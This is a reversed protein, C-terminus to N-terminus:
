NMYNTGETVQLPDTFGELNVLGHTPLAVATVTATQGNKYVTNGQTLDDYDRRDGYVVDETSVHGEADTLRGFQYVFGTAPADAPEVEGIYRYVPADSGSGVTLDHTNFFDLITQVNETTEVYVVGAKGIVWAVAAQVKDKIYVGFWAAMVRFLYNSFIKQIINSM